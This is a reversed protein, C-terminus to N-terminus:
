RKNYNLAAHYYDCKIRHNRKLTEALKECDSRSKCYIIGSKKRFRTNLM